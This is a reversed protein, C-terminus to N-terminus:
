ETELFDLARLMTHYAGPPLNAVEVSMGRSILYNLTSSNYFHGDLNNNNVLTWEAAELFVSISKFYFTGTTALNSVRQKEAVYTTQGEHALVYSFQESNSEFAVVGGSVGSRVWSEIISGTGGDVYSDGSAIVLPLKPDLGELAVLASVLAGKTERSLSVVWVDSFHSLLLGKIGFLQDHEERIVVITQFGPVAVSEIARFLVSKGQYNIFPNPLDVDALDQSRKAGAALVVSYGLVSKTTM